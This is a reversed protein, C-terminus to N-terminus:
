FWFPGKTSMCKVQAQAPPSKTAQKLCLSGSLFYLAGLLRHLATHTDPHSGPDTM